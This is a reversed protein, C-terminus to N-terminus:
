EFSLLLTEVLNLTRSKTYQFAQVANGPWHHEPRLCFSLMGTLNM